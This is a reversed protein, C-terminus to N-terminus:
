HQNDKRKVVIRLKSADKGKTYGSLMEKLKKVFGDEDMPPLTELEKVMEDADIVVPEFGQLLESIARVFFDDVKEPFAKTSIFDEVVKKQDASLYEKSGAVLPDSITDLLTKAWEELTSDIRNEINDLQGFVNKSHDDLSFGCKYLHHQKLDEKKLDYCIKLGALDTEIEGLKATSLIDITRLKKLNGLAAGEQLQGRRKADKM